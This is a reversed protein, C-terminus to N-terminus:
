WGTCSGCSQALERLFTHYQWQHGPNKLTFLRVKEVVPLLYQFKEVEIEVKNKDLLEVAFFLIYIYIPTELFLPVGLADM